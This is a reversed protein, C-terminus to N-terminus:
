IPFARGAQEMKRLLERHEPEHGWESTFLRFNHRIIALKEDEAKKRYTAHGQHFVFCDERVVLRHGLARLRCSLALDEFYGHRYGEGFGGAADFADRDLALCMGTLYPADVLKRGSARALMASRMIAAYLEIGDANPATYLSARFQYLDTPHNSVPAAAAVSADEELAELLLTDFAPTVVTDSNLLIAYRSRSTALGSRAAEKFGRNDAHTVVDADLASTALFADVAEREQRASGDDVLIVRNTEGASAQLSHLCRIVLRAENFFPLVIDAM